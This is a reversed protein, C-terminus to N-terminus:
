DKTRSRYVDVGMSLLLVVGKIVDQWFSDVSLMTMGNFFTILFISGFLANFIKGKGGTLSIGGIVCAIVADFEYSGGNTLTASDLKTYLLFASISAFFGCLMYTFIRYKRVNIGSYYAANENGGIQYICRFFKSNETLYAMLLYLVLLIIVCNPIPGLYGTGIQRIGAPLKSIPVANSIIRAMGKCINMMGLTAMFAPIRCYTILVGNCAGVLVSLAIGALVALVVPTGVDKMLKAAVISSLCINQGLSLDFNGSIMCIAMGLAAIAITASQFLINIMNTKTMFYPSTISFFIMMVILVFVISYDKSLNKAKKLILNM